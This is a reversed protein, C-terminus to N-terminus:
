ASCSLFRERTGRGRTSVALATLSCNCRADGWFSWSRGFASGVHLSSLLVNETSMKWSAIWLAGQQVISGQNLRRELHVTELRLSTLCRAMEVAILWGRSGLGTSPGRCSAFGRFRALRPSVFAFHASIDGSIVAEVDPNDPNYYPPRGGIRQLLQFARHRLKPDTHDLM